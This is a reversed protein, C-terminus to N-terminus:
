MVTIVKEIVRLTGPPLATKPFLMRKQGSSFETIQMVYRM